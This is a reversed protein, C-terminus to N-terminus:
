LSQQLYNNLLRPKYPTPNPMMYDSNQTLPFFGDGACLSGRHTSSSFTHYLKSQGLEKEKM